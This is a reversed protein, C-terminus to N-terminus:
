LPHFSATPRKACARGQCHVQFQRIGCVLLPPGPIRLTCIIGSLQSSCSCMSWNRTKKDLSTSLYITIAPSSDKKKVVYAMAVTLFPLLTIHHDLFQLFKKPLDRRKERCFVWRIQQSFWSVHFFPLLLLSATHNCLGMDNYLITNTKICVVNLLNQKQM